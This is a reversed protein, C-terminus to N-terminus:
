GYRHDCVPVVAGRSHCGSGTGGNNIGRDAICLPDGSHFAYYCVLAPVRANVARTRCAWTGSRDSFHHLTDRISALPRLPAVCTGCEPLTPANPLRLTSVNRSKVCHLRCSHQVVVPASRLASCLSRTHGEVLRVEPDASRSLVHSRMYGRAFGLIYFAFQTKTENNGSEGFMNPKWHIQWGSALYRVARLRRAPSSAGIRLILELM